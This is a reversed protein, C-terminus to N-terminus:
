GWLEWEAKLLEQYLFAFYGIFSPLCASLFEDPDDLQKLSINKEHYLYHFFQNRFNVILRDTHKYKVEVYGPGSSVVQQPNELLGTLIHVYGTPNSTSSFSYRANSNGINQNLVDVSFKKLVSLDAKAKNDIVEKYQNFTLNNVGKAVIVVLPLYLAAHEILRYLHLFSSIYRKNEYHALCHSIERFINEHIDINKLASNKIFYRFESASCNPIKNILNSVKFQTANQCPVSMFDTSLKILEGNNDRIRGFGSLLLLSSLRHLSSITGGYYSPVNLQYPPSYVFKPM